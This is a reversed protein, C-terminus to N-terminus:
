PGHADLLEKASWRKRAQDYLGLTEARAETLTRLVTGTQVQIEDPNVGYEMLRTWVEEVLPTTVPGLGYHRGNVFPDQSSIAQMLSQSRGQFYGILSQALRIRGEPTGMHSEVLVREESSTM